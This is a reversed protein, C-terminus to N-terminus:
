REAQSAPSTAMATVAAAGAGLLDASLEALDGLEPLGRVLDAAIELDAALLDIPFGRHSLVGALWVVQDVLSVTGDRAEQVAWALLYQNDHGCWEVGAEGSREREEPFRLYFRCCVERALSLLDIVTGDSALATTPASAGSPRRM